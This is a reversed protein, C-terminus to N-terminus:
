LAILARLMERVGARAIASLAGLRRSILRNDLTFLKSRFVSPAM